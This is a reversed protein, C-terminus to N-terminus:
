GWMHGFHDVHQNLQAVPDHAAGTDLASAAAATQATAGSAASTTAAAPTATTAATAATTSAAGTDTATAGQTTQAGAGANTAAAATQPITPSATAVTPGAANAPAPVAPTAPTAPTDGPVAPTAPTAANNAALNVNGHNGNGLGAVLAQGTNTPPLPLFGTTTDGVNYAATAFNQVGTTLGHLTADHNVVNLIAAHDVGIAANNLSVQGTATNILNAEHGLLGIVKNADALAQGTLHQNTIANQLGTATANLDAVIGAKNGPDAAGNVTTGVYAGGILKTTADNFVIGADHVNNITGIDALTSGHAVNTGGASMNSAVDAANQNLVEAAGNILATNHTQLGAILEKSATGQVGHSTLENNFRATFLGDQAQSYADYKTTFTQIDQILNQDTGGNAVTNARAVIDHSDTIFQQLTTTQVNNDPYPTLTKLLNSVQQFGTNGAMQALAADGRVIDQVDRVVDNIYKSAYPNTNYQSIQQQLFDMQDAVNQAHFQSVGAPIQGNNILNQVGNQVYKVQNLLLQQNVPSVGGVLEDTIAGYVTGIQALTPNRNGMIGALVHAARGLGQGGELFRTADNFLTGADAFTPTANTTAM